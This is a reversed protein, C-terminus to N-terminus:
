GLAAVKKVEDYIDEGNVRHSVTVKAARGQIMSPAFPQGPTNLGLAERVRGLGINKGKSMDLGGGDLVDLMLGQRVSVNDRGTVEKVAPDDISWTIDLAIGSQLGDKSQWQRAEVKEAVATYEGVPCPIKKTDNAETVAGQLFIDPNFM